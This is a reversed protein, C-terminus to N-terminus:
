GHIHRGHRQQLRQCRWSNCCGNSGNSSEETSMAFRSTTVTVSGRSSVRKPSTSSTPSSSAGAGIEVADVADTQDECRMASWAWDHAHFWAITGARKEHSLDQRTHCMHHWPVDTNEESGLVEMSSCVHSRQFIPEKQTTQAPTTRGTPHPWVMTEYAM